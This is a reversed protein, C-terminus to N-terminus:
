WGGEGPEAAMMYDEVPTAKDVIEVKLQNALEQMAAYQTEFKQEPWTEDPIKVTGGTAVVRTFKVGNETPEFRSHAVVLRANNHEIVKKLIEDVREREKKDEIQHRMATRVLNFRKLFDVSGTIMKATNDKLEFLKAPAEDIQNELNAFHYLFRGVQACARDFDNSAM